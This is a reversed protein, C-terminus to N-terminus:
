AQLGDNHELWRELHDIGQGDLAAVIGLLADARHALHEFPIVSTYASIGALIRPEPWIFPPEPTLRPDATLMTTDERDAVLRPRIVSPAACKRPGTTGGIARGMGWQRACPKEQEPM